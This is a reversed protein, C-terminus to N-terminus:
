EAFINNRIGFINQPDHACTLHTDGHDLKPTAADLGRVRYIMGYAKIPEDPETVLDPWIDSAAVSRRVEDRVLLGAVVAIVLFLLVLFATFLNQAGGSSRRGIRGSSRRM